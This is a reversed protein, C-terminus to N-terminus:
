EQQPLPNAQKESAKKTTVGGVAFTPASHVRIQPVQSRWAEVEVLCSQAAPGQSLSSTPRDHTLVNPNGHLDLCGPQGPLMPDYWAGTAMRVVDPRMDTDILVGALCAGRDNWVRVIDGDKLGRQAATEAHIHLPERGFIKSARSPGVPDLQGHLRHTPQTTLLHLPFRRARPSTLAERPPLWSPHPPCDDYGFGAITESYLEIRGSPTRLPAAEPNERFATFSTYSKEQEPKEYYGAERWAEFTPMEVGRKAAKDRTQEYLHAIWAAADRGETYSEAIGLRESLAAFIAYDDRADGVPDAAKRMAVLYRDNSSASIDDREIGMTAPLVIDAHRATATWVHEQVIITEPVAWARLLRNIDQHHHFPNGGAWYVLRPAPLSLRQGNYDMDQVEGLLYDTVRAVPIYAGLPSDLTPMSPSPLRAVPNGMGNMSGFGFGLGQGSLGIRGLMAALAICSWFSQEGYDARQLAWNMNIFCRSTAMQTALERIRGAPVDCVKAAWDADFPQGGKGTELYALFRDSGATYRALFDLDALGQRVLEHCLALIMATDTGPRLAVWDDEPAGDSRMPSVHIFRGGKTRFAERFGKQVHAGVGGSEIQGNRAPLGGFSIFLDAGELIADWGTAPGYLLEINGLVHPLLVMGAGFSYNDRQEVAGGFANMFRKLQTKAHHFRGASSWGYSGAFLCQNGHENKVRRLEGAVLDLATDWDVEVFPDAGRGSPAEGPMGELWSRRVAPRRVRTEHERYEPLGAMLTSPDRDHEFPTIRFM